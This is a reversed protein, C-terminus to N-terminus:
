TIEHVTSKQARYSFYLGGVLLLITLYQMVVMIKAWRNYTDPEFRMEVEVQGEPLVLGRLLYNIRLIDAPDGNVFAKWGEPYYIESFVALGSKAVEAKYILKDPEYQSLNINGSGVQLSSSGQYVATQRTNLQNLKNIEEENSGAVQIEEPFWAAGNAEPNHLVANEARGALFYETNLMNLVQTSEFDLEGEQAKQIFSNIEPSLSREILDQYRSLKAGHYGGVSNFRYSTRGDNFPNQLNLVRFYGGDQAVRQDAPTAAFYQQSPDQIFSDSDLYRRNVGWIDILVLCAIGLSAWAYDLKKILAAFVLGASLIIFVLSRIADSHMLSKRDEQLARQLWDPFNADVAGKYGMSGAAVVALLVLGLTIGLSIFFKRKTDKHEAQSFLGELGLGGLVPIAFLTIGLAMSVARFKNFGPLVDFLLYNFWALNKGWSLMLTLLTIIIFVKKHLPPAFFIGVIFLFVLIAGGYIPGGTGPQDGWYTNANSIFQNIQAPEVGQSRLVKETASNEPLSESSAGGQFYPVLLTLSEMKGQSWHFAYDKDLGSKVDQSSELNREGRISYKGYELVTALRAANGGVGLCAALLLVGTIKGFEPLSSAKWYAWLQGIGYVLVILLTYYTIQLHNFKLQMLVALATLAAGLILKKNFALHIGAIMLPIVCVAWIKANHGAELSLLNFTNLAFAWAVLTSIIPRVKFGLMLMYMGLMGFFLSGIPHPLGLTFVKILTNTIDGKTQTHILYAPMGGFMRNTWLTEEGTEQRHDLIEKASGEWQLIDSQFMMKGDFVVPSFYLVTVLYFSLIGLLHPLVDKKFDFPM